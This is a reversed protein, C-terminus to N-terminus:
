REVQEQLSRCVLWFGLLICGVALAALLAAAVGSQVKLSGAVCLLALLACVLVRGSQRVRQNM